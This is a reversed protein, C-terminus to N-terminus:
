AGAGGPNARRESRERRHRELETEERAPPALDRLQGLADMLAKACMSKSTASNGPEDIERALALASAALGSAALRADSAAIEAIDAKVATEVPGM